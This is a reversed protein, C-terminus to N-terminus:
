RAPRYPLGSTSMGLSDTATNITTRFQDIIAGLLLALDVLPDGRAIDTPPEAAPAPLDDLPGVADADVHM